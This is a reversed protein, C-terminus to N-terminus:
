KVIIVYAPQPLLKGVRVSVHLAHNQLTTTLFVRNPLSNFCGFSTYELRSGATVESSVTISGCASESDSCSSSRSEFICVGIMDGEDIYFQKSQDLTVVGCYLLGSSLENGTRNIQVRTNPVLEFSVFQQQSPRYIGFETSYNSNRDIEGDAFYCFHWALATGRCGVSPLESLFFGRRESPTSMPVQSDANYPCERVIEAATFPLLVVFLTILMVSVLESIEDAAASAIIYM